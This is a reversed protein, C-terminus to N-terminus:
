LIIVYELISNCCAGNCIPISSRDVYFSAIYEKAIEDPKRKKGAVLLKQEVTNQM